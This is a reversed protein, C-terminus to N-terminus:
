GPDSDRERIARDADGLIELIAPITRAEVLRGRIEASGVLRAVRSLIRMQQDPRDSPTVLLFVLHIPESYPTDTPLGSESRGVVVISTELGRVRAHPIAVGKGIDTSLERERALSLSAVDVDAPLKSPAITRALEVIADELSEAQLRPVITEESVLDLLLSGDVSIVKSTVPGSANRLVVEKTVLGLITGSGPVLLGDCAQSSLAALADRITSDPAIRELHRTKLAWDAGAANVADSDRPLLMGIPDDNASDVVVLADLASDRLTRSVVSAGANSSIREVGNWPIMVEHVPRRGIWAPDDLLIRLRLELVRDEMAIGRTGSDALVLRALAVASETEEYVAATVGLVELQPRESLYFARVYIRLAGNLSRALAIVAHRVDSRPVTLVLHTAKAVGARELVESRSADGYVSPRGAKQLEAVTDINLDVVVTDLGGERLFRDVARGVPGYGVVIGVRRGSDAPVAHAAATAHGKSLGDRRSRANAFRHLRPHRELWAEISPLTRFLIPNLTITLIATAVLVHHGSESLLGHTRASESLIFSFEGIQALGIAVTLATHSSGGLIAVIALAALPKAVLVIALAAALMAPERILVAPDFLMGVSVFFLVSFADRLPLADAAAQHALPSLSVLMGGLFAGLAVSAGFFEYSATAVAISMVLVTLTFLERSRLRAVRVLVWPILRPGVFGVVAVFASLKAIAIGARLWPSIDSPISSSSALGGQTIASTGLTPILVLVIVTLVDEVLLWGVVVHGAPSELAEADMLVRMLVVTSAVAFAVGLVLSSAASEGLRTFILFGLLTAVLGQGIAGPLAVAKVALLDRVHFHLGVGFMLLIVGVEALQNAVGVDGVFGPTYPGILVGALLYGVIPSLRLKQTALGLLWAGTFAAAITSVLSIDTLHLEQDNPDPDRPDVRTPAAAAAM